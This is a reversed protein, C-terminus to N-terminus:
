YKNHLYGNWQQRFRPSIYTDNTSPLSSSSSYYSSPQTTNVRVSQSGRRSIEFAILQRWFGTNPRICPRLRRVHDYAEALSMRAYKVLYALVLSPSRSVGAICHVLSRGGLRAERAIRDAVSDFYVSLDASELDEVCIQVHTRQGGSASGAAKTATPLLLLDPPLVEVMASIVQTVGRAELRAPTLADLSSLYLHDNIRAIQSFM